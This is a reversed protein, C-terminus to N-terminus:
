PVSVMKHAREVVMMDAPHFTRNIAKADAAAAAVAIGTAVAAAVVVAVAMVAVAVVTAAAVVVMAAVVALAGAAVAAAKAASLRSASPATCQDTAARSLRSRPRSAVSPAFRPSCRANAGIM